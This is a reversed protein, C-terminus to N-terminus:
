RYYGERTCIDKDAVVELIENGTAKNIYIYDMVIDADIFRRSSLCLGKLIRPAMDIGRKKMEEDSKPPDDVEFRYILRTDTGKVSVLTTYEDVRKPLTEALGESAKKVVQRNQMKIKDVELDGGLQIQSVFPKDPMSAFACVSMVAVTSLIRIHIDKM